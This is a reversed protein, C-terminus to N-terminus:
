SAKFSALRLVAQLIINTYLGAIIDDSMIGIGGAADQLMGAPYPKLSDFVRFLVFAIIILKIDYPIFMLSIFMGSIEDIVICQADKRNFVKEARDAILFGLFIFLLTFVLSMSTNDKILYFLWVGVLSGFTGPLPLYGVGFFTILAIVIFNLLKLGGKRENNLEKAL